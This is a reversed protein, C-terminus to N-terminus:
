MKQDITIRLEVDHIIPTSTLKVILKEDFIKTIKFFSNVFTQIIQINYLRQSLAVSHV